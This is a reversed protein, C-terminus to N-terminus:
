KSNSIGGQPQWSTEMAALLLKRNLNLHSVAEALSRIYNKYRLIKM